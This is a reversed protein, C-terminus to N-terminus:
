SFTSMLNRYKENLLDDWIYKCGCEMTDFTGYRYKIICLYQNEECTISDGFGTVMVPISEKARFYSDELIAM